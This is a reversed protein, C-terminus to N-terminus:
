SSQITMKITKKSVSKHATNYINYTRYINKYLVTENIKNSITQM